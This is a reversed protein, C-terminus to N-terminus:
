QSNNSRGGVVGQILGLAKYSATQLYMLVFILICCILSIVLSFWYAPVGFLLYVGSTIGIGQCIIAVYVIPAVNIQKGNAIAKDMM